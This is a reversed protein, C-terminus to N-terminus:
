SILYSYLIQERYSNQDIAFPPQRMGQPVLSTLFNPPYMQWYRDRVELRSYREDIGPFIGARLIKSLDL